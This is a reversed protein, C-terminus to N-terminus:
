SFVRKMMDIGSKDKLYRNMGARMVKLSSNKHKEGTENRASKQVTAYFNEILDALDNDNIDDVSQLPLDLIERLLPRWSGLPPPRWCVIKGFNGLFHMFDFSNPGGSPPVCGRRVRLDVM